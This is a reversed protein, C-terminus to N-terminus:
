TWKPAVNEHKPMEVTLDQKMGLKGKVKCVAYGMRVYNLLDAWNDILSENKPEQKSTYLSVLRLFHKNIFTLASKEDFIFMDIIKVQGSNYDHNKSGFCLDDAIQTIERIGDEIEKEM